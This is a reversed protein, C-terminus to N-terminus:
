LHLNQTEPVWNPFILFKLKSLTLSSIVKKRWLALFLIILNESSLKPIILCSKSTAFYILFQKSLYLMMGMAFESVSGAHVGSANTIITKSKLISPFLSKEIGASGFHIWKLKESADTFIDESIRYTTLIDLSEIKDKLDDDDVIHIFEMGKKSNLNSNLVSLLYQFKEKNKTLQIGIKFNTM